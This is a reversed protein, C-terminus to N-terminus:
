IKWVAFTEPVPSLLINYALVIVSLNELRALSAELPGSIINCHSMRLEQLDHFSILASCWEHGTVRVSVGDLYLQRFNSHNQVLKQLNPIELKLV